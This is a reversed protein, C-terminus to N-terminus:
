QKRLTETRGGFVFTLFETRIFDLPSNVYWYTYPIGTQLVGAHEIYIHGEKSYGPLPVGKIFDKFPREEDNGFWEPTQNARYGTITIRDNTIELIGYYSEDPDHTFWTGQLNYDFSDTKWTEWECAVIVFSFLSILFSFILLLIASKRFNLLTLRYRM